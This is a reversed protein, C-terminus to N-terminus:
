LEFKPTIKKLDAAKKAYRSLEEDLRKELAFAQKLNKQAEEYSDAELKSLSVIQSEDLKAKKADNYAKKLNQHKKNCEFYQKQSRRVVYVLNMFDRIEKESMLM